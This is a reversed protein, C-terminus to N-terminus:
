PDPTEQEERREGGWALVETRVKARGAETFGLREAAARSVDIIPSDADTAAASRDVIRVEVIGGQELSTVRVITGLPYSPHAAVLLRQDYTEGGATKRGQFRDSIFVASGTQTEQVQRDTAPAVAAPSTAAPTEAPQRTERGAPPDPESICGMPLAMLGALLCGGLHLSPSVDRRM